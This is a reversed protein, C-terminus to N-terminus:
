TKHLYAVVREQLASRLVLDKPFLHSRLELYLEVNQKLAALLASQDCSALTLRLKELDENSLVTEVKRVGRPLQNNKLHLLPGFVVMRMFALFDHAEFLEGRELKMLAYHIWTWFRDEIWQSDPLPFVAKTSAMVQELLGMKDLLIDPDEVRDGFEELTVFKIDVHLLPDDYMCILLRPEGVHEGTFGSLLNGLKGALGLMKAKDNTIKERTVITFDLDSFEDMNDTLWSGGATLGLVMPDKELIVATRFAFEKQKNM